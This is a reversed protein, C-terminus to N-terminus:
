QKTLEELFLCLYDFIEKFSKLEVYEDPTHAGDGKPAFTIIDMGPKKGYFVGCELGGHTAEEKLDIDFVQKFLKKHLQRMKSNPDYKWGFFHAGEEVDYGFVDALAKVEEGMAEQRSDDGSRNMTWIFIKDDSVHVAGLNCSNLVAGELEPNMDRVTAPVTLVFQVLRKSQLDDLMKEPAECEEVECIFGPDTIRLEDKIEAITKAFSAKAKEADEVSVVARIDSMIANMKDGGDMKAVVIKQYQMAHNLIRAMLKGASGRGKDIAGASHGGQLGHIFLSIFSGEAAQWVSKQTIRLELAGACSVTTVTQDLGGTDMNILRMGDYASPDLKEAGVLGIEEGTTFICELPPHVLNNRSLVGMMYSVANGNDAGLTTGNSRLCGDKIYIPLPDKLFDHNSEPLKVAVIDLHGQLIVPPLDECGKSGPKKLIVNNAEDIYADLGLNKGWNYVYHAVEYENNSGRPIRSIDEFFHLVDQPEYGDTVYKM